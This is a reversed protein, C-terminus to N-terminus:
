IVVTGPSLQLPSNFGRGAGPGAFLDIYAVRMKPALINLYGPMYYRVLILKLGTWYGKEYAPLAAPLTADIAQIERGKIM